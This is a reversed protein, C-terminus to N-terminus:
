QGGGAQQGLSAARMMNEVLEGVAGGADGGGGVGGGGGPAGGNRQAVGMLVAFSIQLLERCNEMFNPGSTALDLLTKISHAMDHQFDLHLLSDQMGVLNFLFWMVSTGLMTARLRRRLVRGAVTSAAGPGLAANITSQIVRKIIASTARDVLMNSGTAVAQPGILLAAAAPGHRVVTTAAAAAAAAPLGAAATSAAATAAASIGSIALDGMSAVATATTTAAALGVAFAVHHHPEDEHAHEDAVAAAVEDDDDISLHDAAAAVVAAITSTAMAAAAAALAEKEAKGGEGEGEGAQGREQDKDGGQAAGGGSAGGGAGADASGDASAEAAPSHAVESGEPVTRLGAAAASAVAGGATVSPALAAAPAPAAAALRSLVSLSHRLRQRTSLPTLPVSGLGLPCPSDVAFRSLSVNRGFSACGPGGSFSANGGGPAPGEHSRQQLPSAPPLDTRIQLQHPGAGPRFRSAAHPQQPHPQAPSAPLHPSGPAHAHAARAASAAAAATAAAAAQAAEAEEEAEVVLALGAMVELWLHSKSIEWSPLYPARHRQRLHRQSPSAAPPGQPQQQQQQQQQQGQGPGASTLSTSCGPSLGTGFASVAETIHGAKEAGAKGEGGRGGIGGTGEGGEGEEREEAMSPLRGAVVGKLTDHRCFFIPKAGHQESYSRTNDEAPAGNFTVYVTMAPHPM